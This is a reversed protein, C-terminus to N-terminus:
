SQQEYIYSYFFIVKWDNLNVTLTSILSPLYDDIFATIVKVTVETEITIERFSPFTKDRRENIIFIMSQILKQHNLSILFVEEKRPIM